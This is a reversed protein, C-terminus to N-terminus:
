QPTSKRIRACSDLHTQKLQLAIPVMEQNKNTPCYARTHARPGTAGCLECVHKQLVPCLVNGRADKLRHQMCDTKSSGNGNQFCLSCYRAKPSTAAAYSKSSPKNHMPQNTPRSFYRDRQQFNPFAPSRMWMGRDYGQHSSRHFTGDSRLNSNWPRYFEMGQKYVQEQRWGDPRSPLSSWGSAQESYRTEESQFRTLKLLNNVHNPDMFEYNNFM